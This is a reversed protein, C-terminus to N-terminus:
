ELTRLLHSGGLPAQDPELPLSGLASSSEKSCAFSTFLFDSSVNIALSWSLGMERGLNFLDDTLRDLTDFIVSKKHTRFQSLDYSTGEPYILKQLRQM